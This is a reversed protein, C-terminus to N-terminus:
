RSTSCSRSSHRWLISYQRRSSGGSYRGSTKASSCAATVAGVLPAGLFSLMFVPNIIVVNIRQFVAVAAREDVQHLASMVSVAYGYYLGAILGSTVTSAILLVIRLNQM